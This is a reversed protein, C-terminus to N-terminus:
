ILRRFSVSVALFYSSTFDLRHRGPLEGGLILSCVLLRELQLHLDSYYGWLPQAQHCQCQSVSGGAGAAAQGGGADGLVLTSDALISIHELM